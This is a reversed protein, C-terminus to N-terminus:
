PPTEDPDAAALLRAWEFQADLFGEGGAAFADRIETLVALFQRVREHASETTGRGKRAYGAALQKASELDGFNRVSGLDHALELSSRLEVIMIDCIAAIEGIVEPKLTVFEGPM